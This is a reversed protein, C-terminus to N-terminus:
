ESPHTSSSLFYPRQLAPAPRTLLLLGLAALAVSCLHVGQNLRWHWLSLGLAGVVVVLLLLPGRGDRWPRPSRGCVALLLLLQVLAALMAVGMQWRDLELTMDQALLPALDTMRLAVPVVSLLFLIGGLWFALLVRWLFGTAREFTGLKSLKTNM